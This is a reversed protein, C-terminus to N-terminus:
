IDCCYDLFINALVTSDVFWFTRLLVRKWVGTVFCSFSKDKAKVGLRVCLIHLYWMCHSTHCFVSLLSPTKTCLTLVSLNTKPSYLESNHWTGYSSNCYCKYAKSPAWTNSNVSRKVTARANWPSIWRLSIFFDLIGWIIHVGM